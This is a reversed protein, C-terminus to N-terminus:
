FFPDTHGRNQRMGHREESDALRTASKFREGLVRREIELLAMM